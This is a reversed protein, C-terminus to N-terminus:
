LRGNLADRIADALAAGDAIDVLRGTLSGDLVYRVGQRPIRKKAVQLILAQNGGGRLFVRAGYDGEASDQPHTM